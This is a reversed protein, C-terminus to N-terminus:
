QFFQLFSDNLDNTIPFVTFFAFADFYNRVIVVGKWAWFTDTVLNQRSYLKLCCFERLTSAFEGGAEGWCTGWAAWTRRGSHRPEGLVPHSSQATTQLRVQSLILCLKMPTFLFYNFRQSTSISLSPPLSSSSSVWLWLDGRLEHLRCLLKSQAGLGQSSTKIM